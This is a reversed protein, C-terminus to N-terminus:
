DLIEITLKNDVLLSDEKSGNVSFTVIDILYENVWNYVAVIPFEAASLTVVVKNRSTFIPTESEVRYIGTDKRRISFNTETTNSLLETIIPDSAGGQLLIVEFLKKGSNKQLDELKIVREPLRAWQEGTPLPFKKANNKM